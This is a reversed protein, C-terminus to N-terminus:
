CSFRYEDYLISTESKRTFAAESTSIALVFHSLASVLSALVLFFPRPVGKTTRLICAFCWPIEWKLALESAIGTCVRSAGQAASFLALSSSTAAPDFSLSETMQGINNTM